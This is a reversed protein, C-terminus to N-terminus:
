TIIPDICCQRVWNDVDAKAIRVHRGLKFYRIRREAILRRVFRPTVNMLEAVDNVALLPGVTTLDEIDTDPTKPPGQM